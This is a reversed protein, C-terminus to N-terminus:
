FIRYKNKNLQLRPKYLLHYNDNYMKFPLLWHRTPLFPAIITKGDIMFIQELFTTRSVYDM